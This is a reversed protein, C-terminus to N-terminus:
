IHQPYVPKGWDYGIGVNAHLALNPVNAHGDVINIRAWAATFKGELNVFLNRWIYFRRAVSVQGIPGSFYYGANFLGGSEDFEKGRINTEPHTMVVGAGVRFIYKNYLRAYNITFLNYGDTITFDNVEPPNNDLYLKQHMNELEIADDGFWYGLRFYYYPPFKLPKTSFKATFNLDPYGSQEIKVPTPFNYVYGSGGEFSWTGALVCTPLVLFVVFIYKM